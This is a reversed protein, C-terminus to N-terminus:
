KCSSAASTLANCGVEYSYCQMSLDAGPNLKESHNGNQIGLMRQM